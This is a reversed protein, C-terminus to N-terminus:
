LAAAGGPPRHRLRDTAPRPRRGATERSAWLLLCGLLGLALGAAGVPRAQEPAGSDPLGAAPAPTPRPTATPTPGTATSATGTTAASATPPPQLDTPSAPTPSPEPSLSTSPGPSPSPDPDPSPSPHPSPTAAAPHVADAELRVTIHGPAAITVRVTLTRGQDGGVIIHEPQDAGPIPRGDRYWQWTLEADAPPRGSLTASLTNGLDPQGHVVPPSPEFRGPAPIVPPTTRTVAARGDAAATVAVAIAHGVDAATLSYSPGSAGPIPWGDRLWQWSLVADNPSLGGHRAYLREGLRASGQIWVAALDTSGPGPAIDSRWSTDHHGDAVATAVVTVRHGDDDGALRYIQDTAGPIPSDDRLWQWSLDANAPSLGSVAAVVTQGVAPPGDTVISVAGVIVAPRPDDGLAVLSQCPARGEAAGDARLSLRHGPITDAARIQFAAGTAGPIPVDDALWQWSVRTWVPDLATASATVTQGYVPDGAIVIGLACPLPIVTIPDSVLSASDYGDQHATVQLTVQHWVDDDTLRHSPGTAGPIPDQDRYWQWSLWATAPTVADASATLTTGADAKQGEAGDVVVRGIAAPAPVPVVPDASRVVPDGVTTSASATVTIARGADAGTLAYAPGTAGPIPWGDRLWQWAIDADAPNLGSLVATLTDGVVPDDQVIRVADLEAPGTGIVVGDSTASQGVFPVTLADTQGSWDLGWQYAEDPIVATATVVKGRLEWGLTLSSGTQGALTAGDAQWSYELLDPTAPEFGTTRATLLGGVRPEGDLEVTGGALRASRVLEVQYDAILSDDAASVVVRYLNHGPNGDADQAAPPDLRPMSWVLQPIDGPGDNGRYVPVAAVPRGDDATVTVSAGAFDTGGQAFSWLRRTTGDAPCTGQPLAEYPFLGAAPWALETGAPLEPAAPDLILAGSTDTQGVGILDLNPALLRYRSTARRDCASALSDAIAQGGTLGDPSVVAVAATAAAAGQASHCPGTPDLDNAPDAVAGPQAALLLAGRQAEATLAPALRVPPSGALERAQDLVKLVAERSDASTTGAVCDGVRGTWEAPQDLAPLLAVFDDRLQEVTTGAAMAPSWVAAGVVSVFVATLGLRVPLTAKM